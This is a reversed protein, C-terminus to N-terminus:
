FRVMEHLQLLESRYKFNDPFFMQRKDSKNTTITQASSSLSSEGNNSETMSGGIDRKQQDGVIVFDEKKKNKEKRAANNNMSKFLPQLEKSPPIGGHSPNIVFKQINSEDKEEDEEKSTFFLERSNQDEEIDLEYSSPTSAHSYSTHHATEFTIISHHDQTFESYDDRDTFEGISPSSPHDDVDVSLTTTPFIMSNSSNMLINAAATNTSSKITKSAVKVTCWLSDGFKTGDPTGLCFYSSYEGPIAPAKLEASILAAENPSIVPVIEYTECNNPRLISGGNFMLSTGAPWDVNGNNVVKWM